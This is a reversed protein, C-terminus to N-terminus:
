GFCWRCVGCEQAHPPTISSDLSVRPRLPKADRLARAKAIQQIEDLVRRFATALHQYTGVGSVDLTKLTAGDFVTTDASGTVELQDKIATSIVSDVEDELLLFQGTLLAGHHEAPSFAAWSNLGLTSPLTQYDLFVTAAERPLVIKYVGEEAIYIGKAGVIQDIGQREQEPMQGILSPPLSVAFLLITFCRPAASKTAM